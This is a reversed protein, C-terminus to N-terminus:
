KNRKIYDMYIKYEIYGYEVPVCGKNVFSPHIYIIEGKHAIIFLESVTGNPIKPSYDNENPVYGPKFEKLTKALFTYGSYVYSGKPIKMTLFLSGKTSM